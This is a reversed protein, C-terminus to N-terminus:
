PAEGEECNKLGMDTVQCVYVTRLAGFLFYDNRVVIVREGATAVGGYGCGSLAGCAVLALAFLSRWGSLPKTSEIAHSM